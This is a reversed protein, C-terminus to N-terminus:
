GLKGVWALRTIVGPDARDVGATVARRSPRQSLRDSTRPVVLSAVEIIRAHRDRLAEGEREVNEQQREDHRPHREEVTRRVQEETSKRQRACERRGKEAPPPAVWRFVHPCSGATVGPVALELGAAISHQM